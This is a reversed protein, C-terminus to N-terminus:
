LFISATSIVKEQHFQGRNAESSGGLPGSFFIFVTSIVKEHHFQGGYAGSSGGLCEHSGRSFLSESESIRPIPIIIKVRPHGKKFFFKESGFNKQVM